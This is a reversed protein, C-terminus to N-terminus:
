RHGATSSAFCAATVRKTEMEEWNKSTNRRHVEGTIHIRHRKYLSEGRARAVLRACICAQLVQFLLADCFIFLFSANCM